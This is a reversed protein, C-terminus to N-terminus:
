WGGSGGANAVKVFGLILVLLISHDIEGKRMTNVLKEELVTARSQRTAFSCTPRGPQHMVSRYQVLSQLAQKADDITVSIVPDVSRDLDSENGNYDLANLAVRADGVCHHSLYEVVEESVEIEKPMFGLRCVLGNGRDDSDRKIKRAEAAVDGVVKVGATVNSLSVFRYASRISCSNVIARGITTNFFLKAFHTKCVKSM